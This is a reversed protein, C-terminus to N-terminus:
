KHPHYIRLAETLNNVQLKQYINHAHRKMTNISINMEDAVEKYLKGQALLELVEREKPSLREIKKLQEKTKRFAKIIKQAIGPSMPAGGAYFERILAPLKRHIQAKHIYAGAGYSLAKFIRQEDIHASIVLIKLQPMGSKLRLICELGDIRSNKLSLDMLVIDPQVRPIMQLAEIGDYHQSICHLDPSENIEELLWEQFETEDEVLSLKIANM